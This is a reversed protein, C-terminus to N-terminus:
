LRQTGVSWVHPKKAAAATNQAMVGVLPHPVYPEELYACEEATLALEMAKAAGEMHSLRTTGVVPVATKALLWALAIETMSVSRRWFGYLGYLHPIGASRFQWADHIEHSFGEQQTKKTDMM